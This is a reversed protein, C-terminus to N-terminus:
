SVRRSKQRISEIEELEKKIREAMKSYSKNQKCFKLMGRLYEEREM